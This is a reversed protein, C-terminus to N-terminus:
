RKSFASAGLEQFSSVRYAALPNAIGQGLPVSRELWVLQRNSVGLGSRNRGTLTRHQADRHM